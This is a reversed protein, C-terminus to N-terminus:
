ATAEGRRSCKDAHQRKGSLPLSSANNTEDEHEAVKGGTADDHEAVGISGTIKLWGRGAAGGDDDISDPVDIWDMRVAVDGDGDM